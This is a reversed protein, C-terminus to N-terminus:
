HCYETKKFDNDLYTYIYILFASFQRLNHKANRFAVCVIFQTQCKLNFEFLNNIRHMFTKQTILIM